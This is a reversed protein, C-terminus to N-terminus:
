REETGQTGQTNTRRKRWVRVRGEPLDEADKPKQWGQARLADGVAGRHFDEGCAAKVADVAENFRIYERDRAFELLVQELLDDGARFGENVERQATKLEQPLNARWGAGHAELAQAFLHNRHEDMYAEVPQKARNGSSIEIAVFRRNGTPDNPLVGGPNSTGVMAFLRPMPQPNRRYSLRIHGDDQRTLFAKLANRERKGVGALEAYEAIVVGQTAEVVSKDDSALNVQDSFWEGQRDRPLIGRVTASKGCDQEGILVPMEDLKCGPKAARQVPALFCYVAAWRALVECEKSFDFLDFLWEGLAVPHSQGALPAAIPKLYDEVFPDFRRLKMQEGIFLGWKERSVHWDNADKGTNLFTRSFRSRIYDETDDDLVGWPEGKERVEAATSRLNRRFEIGLLRCGEDFGAHSQHLRPRGKISAQTDSGAASDLARQIDAAPQKAMKGAFLYRERNAEFDFDRRAEHYIVHDRNGKATLAVALPGRPPAARPLTQALQRALDDLGCWVVVYGGSGVTDGKFEGFAWGNIKSLPHGSGAYYWLHAHGPTTTPYRAVPAGLAAVVADPDGKDVDM